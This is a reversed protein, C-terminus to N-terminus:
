KREELNLIVDKVTIPQDSVHLIQGGSIYHQHYAGRVDWWYVYDISDGYSGDDQLVEATRLPLGGIDVPIGDVARNQPNNTSVTKPTLRKGSSTVKGKVTSYLIVQGSMASIVYLHKISGPKNDVLLRNMINKQEISHGDPDTPVTVTAKKIGSDSQPQATGQDCGSNDAGVSLFAFIGLLLFAAFRKM